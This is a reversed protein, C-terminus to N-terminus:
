KLLDGQKKRRMRMLHAELTKPDEGVQRIALTCDFYGYEKVLRRLPEPMNDVIAQERQRRDM